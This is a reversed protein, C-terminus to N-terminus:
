NSQLVPKNEIMNFLKEMRSLKRLQPSVEKSRRQEVYADHQKIHQMVGIYSTFYRQFHYKVQHNRKFNSTKNMHNLKIEYSQNADRYEIETQWNDYKSKILARNEGVINSEFGHADSMKLFKKEDLIIKDWNQNDM